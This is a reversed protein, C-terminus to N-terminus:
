AFVILYGFLVAWFMIAVIAELMWQMVSGGPGAV